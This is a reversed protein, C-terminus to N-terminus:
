YLGKYKLDERVERLRYDFDLHMVEYLFSSMFDALLAISNPPADKPNASLVGHAFSNRLMASIYIGKQNSDGKRFATLSRRQHTSNSNSLLFNFVSNNTDVLKFAERIEEFKSEPAYELAFHYKGGEIGICDVAYREFASFMLFHRNLAEYGRITESGYGEFNISKLSKALRLRRAFANFKPRSDKLYGFDEMTAKAIGKRTLYRFESFGPLVKEEYHIKYQKEFM